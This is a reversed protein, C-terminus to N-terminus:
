SKISLELDTVESFILLLVNVLKFTFVVPTILKIIVVPFILAVPIHLIVLLLIAVANLLPAEPLPTLKIEELPKETLPDVIVSVPFLKEM